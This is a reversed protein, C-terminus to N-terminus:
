SAGILGGPVLAFRNANVETPEMEQRQAFDRGYPLPRADPCPLDAPVTKSNVRLEAILIRLLAKTQEPQGQAIVNRL